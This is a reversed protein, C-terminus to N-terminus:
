VANLKSSIDWVRREFPNSILNYQNVYDLDDTFDWSGWLAIIESKIMCDHSSLYKNRLKIKTDQNVPGPCKQLIRLNLATHLPISFTYNVEFLLTELVRQISQPAPIKSFNILIINLLKAMLPTLNMNKKKSLLWILAEEFENEPMFQLASLLHGAMLSHLRSKSFERKLLDLAHPKQAFEELRLDNQARMESYPDMSPMMLLTRLDEFSEVSGKTPTFVKQFSNESLWESCSLIRTKSKQLSLGYFNLIESVKFLNQHAIQDSKSFIKIDDVFRCFIFNESNLTNDLEILAAEALIRSAPGGIPLGYNLIDLSDIILSLRQVLETPCNTNILANKVLEPKLRRYFDAIDCILVYNNKEGLEKSTQQFSRWGITPQFIRNESDIPQWRYSHIRRSEIPQRKQEIFPASLITLSLYYINWIPDIKTGLRFGTHGSPVLSRICEIKSIQSVNKLKEHLLLVSDIATQPSNKWISYCHDVPFIDTDGHSLINDLGQKIAEPLYSDWSM